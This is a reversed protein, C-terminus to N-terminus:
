LYDLWIILGGWGRGGEWNYVDSPLYIFVAENCLISSILAHVAICVAISITISIAICLWLLYLQTFLAVICVAVKRAVTQGILFFSRDMWRSMQNTEALPQQLWNPSFNRLKKKVKLAWFFINIANWISRNINTCVTEKLNHVLRFKWSWIYM